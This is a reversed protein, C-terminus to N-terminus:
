NMELGFKTTFSLPLTESGAIEKVVANVQAECKYVHKGQDNQGFYKIETIQINSDTNEAGLTSYVKGNKKVTILVGYDWRINNTSAEEIYSFDDIFHGSQSGDVLITKRRVSGNSFKIEALVHHGNQDIELELTENESYKVGDLYWNISEIESSEEDIWVKLDNNTNIFHRVRCNANTYYGVLLENCLTSVDGGYFHVEACVNYKGPENIQLNNVATQIGDVFWIIQAISMTNPFDEKSLSVLPQTPEQVFHLAGQFNKLSFPEDMDMDGQYVGMEVYIDEKGLKGSFRNVGNHEVTFTEMFVDELGAELVFSEEGLTVDATFIPSSNVVPDKIVEKKCAGLFTATLVLIIISISKHSYIM